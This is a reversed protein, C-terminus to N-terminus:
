SSLVVVLLFIVAFTSALMLTYESCRNCKDAFKLSKVAAQFFKAVNEDANEDPLLVLDGVSIPIPSDKSMAVSQLSFHSNKHYGSLGRKYLTKLVITALCTIISFILFLKAHHKNLLIITSEKQLLFGVVALEAVLLSYNYKELSDSYTAESDHRDAEATKLAKRLEDRKMCSNYLM